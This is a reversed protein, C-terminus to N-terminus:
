LERAAAKSWRKSPYNTFMEKEKCHYYCSGDIYLSSANSYIDVMLLVLLQNPLRQVKIYKNVCRCVVGTAITLLDLFYPLIIKQIFLPFIISCIKYLTNIKCLRSSILFIRYYYKGSNIYFFATAYFAYFIYRLSV